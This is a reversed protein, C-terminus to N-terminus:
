AFTLRHRFLAMKARFADGFRRLAGNDTPSQQLIYRSLQARATTAGRPFRLSADRHMRDEVAVAQGVNFTLGPDPGVLEKPTAEPIPFQALDVHKAFEEAGLDAFHVNRLLACLADIGLREAGDIGCDTALDVLTAREYALKSRAYSGCTRHPDFFCQKFGYRKAREPAEPVKIEPAEPTEQPTEGEPSLGGSEPSLGGSEPSLGGIEEVEPTQPHKTGPTPPAPVKTEPATPVQERTELAEPVGPAQATASEPSLGRIEQVEPTQPEKTEPTPPTATQERTELAEPIGSEPSLGRIEEVEPTQPEKTEPTPPTATQERTELAEPIGSEPSLRRIEEV